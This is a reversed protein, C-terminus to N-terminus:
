MVRIKYGPKNRNKRFKCGLPKLENRILELDVDEPEHIYITDDSKMSFEGEKYVDRLIELMEKSTMGEIFVEIVPSGKGFSNYVRPTGFEPAVASFIYIGDFRELVVGRSILENLLDFGYWSGVDLLHYREQDAEIRSRDKIVCGKAADIADLLYPLSDHSCRIKVELM